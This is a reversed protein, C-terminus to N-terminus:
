PRAPRKAGAGRAACPALKVWQLPTVPVGHVWLGWHLHPGTSFGTSGVYGIVQGPKVAAGEAVAFRSLHLYFSVLGQGHDIGVTGGHINFLRVLRVTGAAAAHVPRGAPARQDVGGHYNGTPKGNHLRLVGFPSSMCGPIPLLLPESWYRVPTLTTRLAAVAEKEGPSPELETASKGIIINQRRYHADRVTIDAAHLTRGSTDLFELRYTGPPDTAAVPLLGLREGSPQTWLPVTRGNLRAGAADPSVARLHLTEGQRIATPTWQFTQAAALPFLFLLLCFRRM